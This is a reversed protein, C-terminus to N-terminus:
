HCLKSVERIDLGYFNNYEMSFRILDNKDKVGAKRKINNVYLKVTRKNIGLEGGILDDEMGEGILCLIDEERETLDKLKALESLESLLSKIGTRGIWLNDKYVTHIAKVLMREDTNMGIVGSIKKSIFAYNINDEGCGTDLLLVKLGDMSEPIFNTLIFFDVIVVNPRKNIIDDAFDTANSVTHLRITEEHALLCAIGKSILNNSFFILIDVM